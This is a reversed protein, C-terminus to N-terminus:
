LVVADVDGDDDDDGGNDNADDDDETVPMSGVMEVMPEVLVLLFLGVLFEDLAFLKAFWAFLVELTAVVIAVVAIFSEVIFWRCIDCGDVVADATIM